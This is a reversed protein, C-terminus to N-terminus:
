AERMASLAALARDRAMGHEVIPRPYTKGLVVGAEALLLTFLPGPLLTSFDLVRVGSLPRVSMPSPISIPGSGPWRRGAHRRM